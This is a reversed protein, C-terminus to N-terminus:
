AREYAQRFCRRARFLMSETAKFSLNFIMALEKVPIKEEYHLHLIKQYQISISNFAKEIRDRIKNKEFQFEPQAIENAIIELFPVQSLLVSKIKRKRYFDAVKNHAIKFLWTTLNSEERFFSLEDIAALFVDNLVEEADEKGPLKKRLFRLLKPSNIKYFEVVADGDGQLIRDLIRIM